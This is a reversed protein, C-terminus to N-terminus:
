LTIAENLWDQVSKQIARSDKDIRSLLGGRSASYKRMKYQAHLSVKDEHMWLARVSEFHAELKVYYIELKTDDWDPLRIIRFSEVVEHDSESGGFFTLFDKVAVNRDDMIGQLSRIQGSRIVELCPEPLFSELCRKVNISKQPKSAVVSLLGGGLMTMPVQAALPLNESSWSDSRERSDELRLCPEREARRAIEQFKRLDDGSLGKTLETQLYILGSQVQDLGSPKKRPLVAYMPGEAIQGCSIQDSREKITHFCQACM